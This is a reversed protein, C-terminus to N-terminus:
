SPAGCNTLMAVTLDIPDRVFHRVEVSLKGSMVYYIRLPDSAERDFQACHPCTYSIYETLKHAAAPNGLVHGGSPTVAVTTTWNAPAAHGGAIPLLMAAAIAALKVIRM